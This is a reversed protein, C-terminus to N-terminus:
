LKYIELVSKIAGPITRSPTSYKLMKIGSTWRFIEVNLEYCTRWKDFYKLIDFDSVM